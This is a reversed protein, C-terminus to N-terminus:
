INKGLKICKLNFIFGSDLVVLGKVNIAKSKPVFDMPTATPSVNVLVAFGRVATCADRPTGFHSSISLSILSHCGFANITPM